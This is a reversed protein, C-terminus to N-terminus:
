TFYGSRITLLVCSPSVKVQSCGHGTSWLLSSHWSSFSQADSSNNLSSGRVWRVAPVCSTCLFLLLRRVQAGGACASHKAQQLIDPYCRWPLRLQSGPRERSDILLFSSRFGHASTWRATACMEGESCGLGAQQHGCWWGPVAQLAQEEKRELLLTAAPKAELASVLTWFICLCQRWPM